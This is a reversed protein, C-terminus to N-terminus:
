SRDAIVIVQDRPSLTVSAGKPPNIRAGFASSASGAEAVLRYGMASEGRRGAEAVIAEFTTPRGPTCYLAAPKCYLEAGDPDLLDDFVASLHANEALQTLLLSILRDSVIFDGADSPPALAVDRQDLLETVVTTERGRDELARRVQLTTVLSRADAEAVSLGAHYCLVIAHDADEEAIVEVLDAYAV